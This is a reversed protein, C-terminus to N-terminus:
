FEISKKIDIPEDGVLYLLCFYCLTAVLQYDFNIRRLMPSWIHMSFHVALTSIIELNM